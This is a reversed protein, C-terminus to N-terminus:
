KKLQGKEIQELAIEVNQKWQAFTPSDTRKVLSPLPHSILSMLEVEEEVIKEPRFFWGQGKEFGLCGFWSSFIPDPLTSAIEKQGWALRFTKSFAPLWFVRPYPRTSKTEAIKQLM